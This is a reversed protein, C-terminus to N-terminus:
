IYYHLYSITTNSGKGTDVAEDILFNVEQPIGECMVGFIGCKRPTKFYIPGPQMPNSPVHVQQTYDFSYHVSGAFSSAPRSERNLLDENGLTELTEKSNTCVFKYFEREVKASNLHNKSPQSANPNTVRQFIQLM